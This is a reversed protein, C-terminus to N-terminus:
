DPILHEGRFLDAPRERERILWADSGSVMV